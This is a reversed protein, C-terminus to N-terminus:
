LLFQSLGLLNLFTDVTVCNSTTSRPNWFPLDSELAWFSLCVMINDLFAKLCALKICMKTIVVIIIM